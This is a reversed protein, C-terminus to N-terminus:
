NCQICTIHYAHPVPMLDRDRDLFCTNFLQRKLSKTTPVDFLVGVLYLREWPFKDSVFRRTMSEEWLVGFSM